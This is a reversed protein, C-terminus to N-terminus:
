SNNSAIGFLALDEVALVVDQLWRDSTVEGENLSRNCILGAIDDEVLRRPVEVGIDGGSTFSTDDLDFLDDFIAVQVRLVDVQWGAVRMSNDLTFIIDLSELEPHGMLLTKGRLDWTFAVGQNTPLSDDSPRSLLDVVAHVDVQTDPDRSDTSREQGRADIDGKLTLVAEEPKVSEGCFVLDVGIEDVSTFLGNSDSVSTGVEAGGLREGHNSSPM